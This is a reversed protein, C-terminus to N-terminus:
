ARLRGGEPDIRHPSVVEVMAERGRLPDVARLREGIRDPGRKLLGLAVTEGLNPSFAASTVRGEAHGADVPAGQAFLHAGPSVGAGAVVPRLGVLAPRAPDALGERRLLTAGIFDKKTSVMKALGLDAPTTRGDLEPGAVHGKEIRLVGMAETGYPTAGLDAGAAALAEALREGRGARVAVEYALEGSYSIRFLRAPAGEFRGEGCALFPFAEDALDLGEIVRSLLDRARPGAVATQAWAETVSVLSVDLDPWLCQRCFEMHRFVGAAGGTTTSVVFHDEALRAVTGDDMVCGDERLMLGYRCRGVPLKLMPNAYLRDLFVAADAGQVDIKGLTSVDCFGVAERVALAERDVTQRWGTEGPRPFYQARLWPGVEVFVAGRKEAWGHTPPRRTPRFGHAGAIAALPVPAYPPRFITTGTEAIGSGTIEALVGLGLVAGVRGQDTAMGMTTYRKLHEVAGFGEAEATRIDKVTVDNQFDVWARGKVGEVLWFAAASVPADEAEPLNARVPARGLAEAAARGAADGECLAAATSVAGAAAGAVSLGPPLDPGPVFAAVDERWVPRGRHHCTLHVAPSWGGSVALIDAERWCEVGRGDRVRVGTLGLRGRTGTVRGGRVLEVGQPATGPADERVDVLRVEAGAAALDAATRWAEDHAAFVTVRRGALTAWRNLLARVAGALMVGPRDNDPFAVPRETAGAALVARRAHIRWYVNRAPGDPTRQLVGYVGGDYVGFVCARSMLRVQAMSALEAWAGAAWDAGSVGGVELREALLRGGPRADEDAVIVRLGARGAALAAALGAPGAGIVLLDCHAFARDERGPAPAGSLAGPGAARRILPEYVREWFTAPWMFTKYYFGAGLLPAALDNLALADFRLSPWRNQSVARLGERLELTTARVNPEHDPGEGVGVLANPEESGMTLAGRPRHYKFSRGMVRVGSAILASALTDGQFGAFPKGDFTFGLPRARDILGGEPLRAGTM